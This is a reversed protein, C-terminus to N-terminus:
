AGAKVEKVGYSQCSKGNRRVKAAVPKDDIQKIQYCVPTEYRDTVLHRCTGCNRPPQSQKM